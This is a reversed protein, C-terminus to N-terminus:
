TYTHRISQHCNQCVFPLGKNPHNADATHGCRPCAKSTYHADVKTAVSGSLSAKYALLGHLEAFAWTSVAANAKRQKRSM